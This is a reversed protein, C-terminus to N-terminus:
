QIASDAGARGWRYVLMTAPNFLLPAAGAAAAAASAAGWTALRGTSGLVGGKQRVSRWAHCPPSM